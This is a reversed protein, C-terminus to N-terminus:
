QENKIKDKKSLMLLWNLAKEETTFAKSTLNPKQVNIFFNTIIKQALSNIVFAQAIKNKSMEEGASLERAEKSIHADKGAIFLLFYKKNKTIEINIKKMEIVDDVEITVGDKIQVKIINKELKYINAKSHEYHTKM